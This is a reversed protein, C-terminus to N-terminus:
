LILENKDVKEYIISNSLIYNCKGWVQASYVDPFFGTGNNNASTNCLVSVGTVKKYEKIIEYILPNDEQLVTQLRASNDIHIVAPIEKKALETAQHEFLMFKDTTGPIFYKKSDEQLCIPAIPRFSQRNKIKNLLSKMKINRADAIISRNGLARPGLEAKDNLIIIPEGSIIINVIKKIDSNYFIWGEKVVKENLEPGSYTDWNLSEINRTLNYACIQGIANGSDNIFPPAYINDFLCLERIASNWKINLMSGGAFCINKCKNNKSITDILNDCIKKEVFEHFTRLIDKDSKTNQFKLCLEDEFKRNEKWDNELTNDYQNIEAYIKDMYQSVEVDYKGLAIYAMVTGAFHHTFTNINNKKRRTFAFTDFRSALGPYIDGGFKLLEKCFNFCKKKADYYYLTPKTGGDFMIVYSNEKNKAFPSTFYSSCLHAYVHSFSYYKNFPPKNFVCITNEPLNKYLNHYNNIEYYTDDFLIKNYGIRNDIDAWGDILWVDINDFSYGHKNLIYEVESLYNLHSHRPNNNIKEMEVSFILNDDDSLAVTADHTIKIACLLMKYDGFM